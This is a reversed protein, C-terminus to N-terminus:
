AHSNDEPLRREIWHEVRSGHLLDLMATVGNIGGLLGLGLYVYAIITIAPDSLSVVGETILTDWLMASWLSLGYLSVGGVLRAITKLTM